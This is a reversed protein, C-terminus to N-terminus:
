RAYVLGQSGDGASAGSLLIFNFLTWTIEDKLFIYYIDTPKQQTVYWVSVYHNFVFDM